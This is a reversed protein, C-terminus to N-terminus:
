RWVWLGLDVVVVVSSDVHLEGAGDEEEDGEGKDDGGVVGFAVDLRVVGHVGGDVAGGAYLMILVAESYTRRRMQAHLDFRQCHLLLADGLALFVAASPRAQFMHAVLIRLTLSAIILKLLM